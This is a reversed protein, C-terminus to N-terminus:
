PSNACKSLTGMCAQIFFYLIELYWGTAAVFNVNLLAITSLLSRGPACSVVLMFCPSVCAVTGPLLLTWGGCLWHRAPLRGPRGLLGARRAMLRLPERWPWRNYGGSVGCPLGHVCRRTRGGMPGITHFCSTMRLVPGVCCIADSDSFSPAM